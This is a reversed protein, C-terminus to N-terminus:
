HNDAIMKAWDELANKYHLCKTKKFVKQNILECYCFEESDYMKEAKLMNAHTCFNVCGGNCVPPESPPPLQEPVPVKGFMGRKTWTGHKEKFGKQLYSIAGQNGANLAATLYHLAADMNRQTGWGEFYCVGTSLLAETYGMDAARKVMAFARETDRPIGNGHMLIIGYNNLAYMDDQAVAKEFWEVSARYDLDVIEGKHYECAVNNQATAQGLEAALLYWKFGTCRDVEVDLLGQTYCNGVIWAAIPHDGVEAAKLYWEFAAKYDPNGNPIGKEAYFGLATMAKSSGHSAALTFWKKAEVRDEQVGHGKDYALGVNLEGAFNGAYAADLFLDFAKKYDQQVGIGNKYCMGLANLCYMNGVNAGTQYYEVAKEEDKPVGIGSQYFAGINLFAIEVGNEAALQYYKVANDYSQAVGCGLEYLTGLLNCANEDGMEAAKQAYCFAKSEDKINEDKSDKHIMALTFYADSDNLEETAKSIWYLAEQDNKECDQGLYYMLGLAYEAPPYEKEAAKKYYEFALNGDHTLSQGEDYLKGLIFEAVSYGADAAQTFYAIAVEIDKETDTGCYYREGLETCAISDGDLALSLLDDTSKSSYKYELEQDYSVSIGKIDFENRGKSKSLPFMSTSDIGLPMTFIFLLASCWEESLGGNKLLAYCEELTTERDKSETIIRVVVTPAGLRIATKLVFKEAATNPLLDSIMAYLKKNDWYIDIGFRDLIIKLSEIAQQHPVVGMLTEGCFPCSSIAKSIDTSWEAGCKKCKM